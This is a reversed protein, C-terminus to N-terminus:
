FSFSSQCPTLRILLGYNLLEKTAWNLNIDRYDQHKCPKTEILRLAPGWGKAGSSEAADVKRM